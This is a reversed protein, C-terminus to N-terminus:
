FDWYQNYLSSKLAIYFYKVPVQYALSTCKIERYICGVSINFNTKPNFLYGAKIDIVKTQAAIGQNQSQTNLAPTFDSVFINQGYNYGANLGQSILNVKAQLFIRKFRYGFLAVTENFNAGLPHALAQNYHTYSQGPDTASYTFPRVQNYELQVFLNKLTFVDYYKLGAQYATKNSISTKSGLEDLVFQGYLMLTKLPKISIDIGGMMNKNDQLGYAALNSFIVPNFFAIGMHQRNMSDSHQWILSQFLSVNLYKNVNISLHHFAAGKKQFLRETHPPTHVGGDTLNMLLAYINTYQIKGKWWSHTLKLYPYTFSNDSLLFSRYGNGVKNKGHGLSINIYKSPKFSIFGSAMAYDYGNIKFKKWRGGGPIVLSSIALSDQYQPLTVQNELFVSEFYFKDGVSGKVIVGRSNTYLKESNKLTKLSTITGLDLGGQFNVLPSINLLFKRPRGMEFDTHKLEVFDENFLKRFFWHKNKPIGSGTTESPHIILLDKNRADYVLNANLYPLLGCHYQLVSSDKLINRQNEADFFVDGPFVFSQGSLFLNLLTFNIILIKKM